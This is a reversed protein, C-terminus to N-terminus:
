LQEENKKIVEKFTKQSLPRPFYLATGSLLHGSRTTLCTAGPLNTEYEETCFILHQLNEELVHGKM